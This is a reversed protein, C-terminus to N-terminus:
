ALEIRVWSENKGGASIVTPDRLINGDDGMMPEICVFDQGPLSWIWLRRFDPYVHLALEGIWPITVRVIGDPPMDIRTTGGSSWNEIDQAIFDGWAFNWELVSKDWLPISFYPHLWFSIPLEKNGTNAISYRLEVSSGSLTIINEIGWQWEYGFM